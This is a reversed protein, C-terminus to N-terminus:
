LCITDTKLGVENVLENLLNSLKDESLNRTSIMLHKADYESWDDALLKLGLTDANEYYYTGPFPTTSALTETVGLELLEKMFKKQERITVETDWPHPFMFACVVGIGLDLTIQVAKRVQNLTIGKDICDLIKQSGSEIGYTISYCGADHM